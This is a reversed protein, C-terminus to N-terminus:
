RRFFPALDISTREPLRLILSRAKASVGFALEIDQQQGAGFTQVALSPGSTTSGRDDIVSIKWNGPDSRKGRKVRITRIHIVAIKFGRVPVLERYRKRFRASTVRITTGRVTVPDRGSPAEVTTPQRATTTREQANTGDGGCGSALVILSTV